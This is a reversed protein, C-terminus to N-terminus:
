RTDLPNNIDGIEINDLIGDGDSDNSNPNLGLELERSDSIEDGDSDENSNDSIIDKGTLLKTYSLARGEYYTGLAQTTCRVYKVDSLNYNLEFDTGFSGANHYSDFKIKNNIFQFIGYIKGDYQADEISQNNENHTYVLNGDRYFYVSNGSYSTPNFSIKGITNYSNDLFEIDMPCRDGGWWMKSAFVEIQMGEEYPITAISKETWENVGASKYSGNPHLKVSEKPAVNYGSHAFTLYLGDKADDNVKYNDISSSTNNEGMKYLEAIEEDNLYRNYIRLDDIKGVFL